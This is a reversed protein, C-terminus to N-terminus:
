YQIQKSVPASRRYWEFQLSPAAIRQGPHRGARGSRALGDDRVSKDVVLLHEDEFLIPVSLAGAQLVIPEPEAEYVLMKDGASNRGQASNQKTRFSTVPTIRAQSLRGIQAALFLDFRKGADSPAVVIQGINLNPTGDTM